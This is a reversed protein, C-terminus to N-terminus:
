CQYASSFLYTKLKSKFVSLSASCRIDVPINNWLVPGAISFAQSTAKSSRSFPVELLLQDSSRLSRSSLRLQVLEQIYVPATHNVAKHVTILTKFHIRQQIPLWHLSRLVPTIHDSRPHGTLIRAATNQVRQLKAALSSGIGCLIYNCFDLKTTVFAHIIVELSDRDIYKRLKSINHLQGYASKCVSKVQAEMTAHCDM